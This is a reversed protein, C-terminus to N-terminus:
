PTGKRATIEEAIAVLLGQVIPEAGQAVHFEYITNGIVAFIYREEGIKPDTFALVDIPVLGDKEIVEDVLNSMLPSFADFSKETIRQLIASADPSAYWYVASVRDGNRLLVTSAIAGREPPLVYNLFSTETHSVPLNTFGKRESLSIFSSL